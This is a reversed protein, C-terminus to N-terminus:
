APGKGGSLRALTSAVRRERTAPKKAEAIWTLYERQHSPPLSDFKGKLGAGTLAADLDLLDSM